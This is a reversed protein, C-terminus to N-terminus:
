KNPLDDSNLIHQSMYVTEYKLLIVFLVFSTVDFYLSVKFLGAM